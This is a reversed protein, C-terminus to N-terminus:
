KNMIYDYYAKKRLSVGDKPIPVVAGTKLLFGNGKVGEVFDMNVLYSKHCRLFNDYGSLKLAYEDLKANTELRGDDITHFTLRKDNSEVFVLKELPVNVTIGDCKVQVSAVATKKYQLLFSDLVDSLQHSSLPKLLYAFARVSYGDLAFEKSSSIFVIGVRSNVARIKEALSIGNMDGLVIDLLLL